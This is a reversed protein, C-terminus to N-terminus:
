HLSHGQSIRSVIHNPTSLDINPNPIVATPEANPLVAHTQVRHTGELKLKM